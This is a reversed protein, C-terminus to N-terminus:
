GMQKMRKLDMALLKGLLMGLLCKGKFKQTLIKYEKRM